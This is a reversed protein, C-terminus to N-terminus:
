RRYACRYHHSPADSSPLGLTTAHNRADGFHAQLRPGEYGLVLALVSLVSIPTVVWFGAPSNAAIAVGAVAVIFGLYIPHRVLAYPGTRVFQSPPYANMPLGKGRLWLVAMATLMFAIGAIVLTVGIWDPVPITWLNPMLQDLRWAWFWWLTPLVLMFFAGYAFQGIKRSVEM